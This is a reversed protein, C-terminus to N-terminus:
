LIVSLEGSARGHDGGGAGGNHKLHEQKDTTTCSNQLIQELLSTQPHTDSHARSHSHTHTCLRVDARNLKHRRTVVKFGARTRGSVTGRTTPAFGQPPRWRSAETRTQMRTHRRHQRKLCQRNMSKSRTPHNWYEWYSM